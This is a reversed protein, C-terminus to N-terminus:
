KHHSCGCGHNEEIEELEEEIEDEFFEHKQPPFFLEKPFDISNFLDCPNEPSIEVCTPPNCFGFAPVLLQVLRVLKIITFIGITVVIKREPKEEGGINIINNQNIDVDVDSNKVNEVEVTAVNAQIIGLVSKIIEVEAAGLSTPPCEEDIRASLCIPEAVEVVGNPKNDQELLPYCHNESYGKKSKSKFIKISGQSGFLVVKKTFMAVGCKIQSPRNKFFLEVHVKFIFTVTVTYFGKRFRLPEVDIKVHEVEVDVCSVDIAKKILCKSIGFVELDELCDREKCSDYVKEVQICVAEKIKCLDHENIEGATIHDCKESM